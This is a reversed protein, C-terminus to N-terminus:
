GFAASSLGLTVKPRGVDRDAPAKALATLILAECLKMAISLGSIIQMFVDPGSWGLSGGVIPTGCLSPGAGPLLLYSHSQICM